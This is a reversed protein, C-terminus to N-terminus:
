SNTYEETPAIIDSSSPSQNEHLDGAETPIAELHNLAEAPTPHSRKTRWFQINAKAFTKTYYKIAKAGRISIGSQNINSSADGVSNGSRFHLGNKGEGIRSDSASKAANHKIMASIVEQAVLATKRPRRGNTQQLEKM